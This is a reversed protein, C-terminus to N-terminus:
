EALVRACEVCGALHREVQAREAPTVEGDLYASLLPRVHPSSM